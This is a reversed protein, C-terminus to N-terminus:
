YENEYFLKIWAISEKLSILHIIKDDKPLISPNNEAQILYKNAADLLAQYFSKADCNVETLIEGTYSQKFIRIDSYNLQQICFEEYDEMVWVEMVWSKKIEKKPRKPLNKAMTTILRFAFFDTIMGIMKDAVAFIFLQKYLRIRM